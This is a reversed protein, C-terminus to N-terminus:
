FSSCNNGLSDEIHPSFSSMFSCYSALQRFVQQALLYVHNAAMTAVAMFCILTVIHSCVDTTM